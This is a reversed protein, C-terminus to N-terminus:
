EPEELGYHTGFEQMNLLAELVPLDVRLVSLNVDGGTLGVAIAFRHHGDLLYNTAAALLDAPPYAGSTIADKVNALDYADLRLKVPRLRSAPLQVRQIEHGQAALHHQFLLSLDAQGAQNKPLKDARSGTRPQGRLFPLRSQPPADPLCFLDADDASAAECLDITDLLGIEAQQVLGALKGVDTVPQDPIDFALGHRHRFFDIAEALSRGPIGEVGGPHGDPPYPRPGNGRFLHSEGARDRAEVSM